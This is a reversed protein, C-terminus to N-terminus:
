RRPASERVFDLLTATALFDYNVEEIETAFGYMPVTARDIEVVHQDDSVPAIVLFNWEGENEEFVIDPALLVVQETATGFEQDDSATYIATIKRM